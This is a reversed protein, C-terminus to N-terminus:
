TVLPGSILKVTVFVFEPILLFKYVLNFCRDIFHLVFEEFGVTTSCVDKEIETLDTHHESATSCDFIPVLTAITTV